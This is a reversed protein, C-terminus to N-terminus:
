FSVEGLVHSERVEKEGSSVMTVKRTKGVKPLRLQPAPGLWDPLTTVGLTPARLTEASSLSWHLGSGGARPQSPPHAAGM